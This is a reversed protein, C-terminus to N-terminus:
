LNAADLRAKLDNIIAQQEQIAKVLVPILDQYQLSLDGSTDEIVAEPLVKQVDQAILFVRRKNTEDFKYKGIVTRLGLLIEIGNKIPEIIDKVREDSYTGWSNGGAGLNVGVATNSGSYMRLVRGNSNQGIYAATGDLHMVLNYGSGKINFQAAAQARDVPDDVLLKNIGSTAGILLNGSSDIRMRETNNTGFVLPSNLQNMLTLAGSDHQLSSIRDGNSDFLGFGAIGFSALATTTQIRVLASGSPWVGAVDLRSGPSSTGIGVNGSADKYLQGSGINIVSTDGTFGNITPNTLTKNTLTQSTNTSAVDTLTNSGFAITKNTLTQTGSISVATAGGLTTAAPLTATGTVNLTKGSGVNLGVSTGTGDGKFIGDVTDLNTNIKGGWTDTSAGVEPKVLSLNTTSTDAM